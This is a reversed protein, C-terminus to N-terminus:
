RRSDEVLLELGHQVIYGVLVSQPTNNSVIIGDLKLLQAKRVGMQNLNQVLFM